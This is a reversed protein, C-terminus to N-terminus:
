GIGRRRRTSPEIKATGASQARKAGGGSKAWSGSLRATPPVAYANMVKLGRAGNNTSGVAGFDKTRRWDKLTLSTGDIVVFCFSEGSCARATAITMAEQVAGPAVSLNNLFDYAGQRTASTKCVELVKGAPHKAAEMALQVLRRTRRSDGLNAHGFVEEAWDKASEENM